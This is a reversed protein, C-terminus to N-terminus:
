RTGQDARGAARLGAGHHHLLLGISVAAALWAPIRTLWFLRVGFAEAGPAFVRLGNTAVLLLFTVCTAAYRIEGTRLWRWGFYPLHVAFVVLLLEPAWDTM